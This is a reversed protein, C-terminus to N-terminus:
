NIIRPISILSIDEKDKHILALIIVDSRQGAVFGRAQATRREKMVELLYIPKLNMFETKPKISSYYNM